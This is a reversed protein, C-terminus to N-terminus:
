LKLTEWIDDCENYTNCIVTVLIIGNMSIIDNETVTSDKFQNKNIQEVVFRKCDNLRDCVNYNPKSV